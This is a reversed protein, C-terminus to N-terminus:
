RRGEADANEDVVTTASGQEAAHRKARKEARQQARQRRTPPPNKKM